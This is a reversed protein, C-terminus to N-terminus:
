PVARTPRSGPRARSLEALAEEIPTPGSIVDFARGVTSSTGLAAALVAAVDARPVSGRELAEGVQVRGTGPDDLLGGPRVITWRLGSQTLAADAQAKARLYAAFGDGPLEPDNAGMASVMVYRDVGGKRCAAILRIAGDRDMTQKRADGSGPGAGAGFVAASAGRVVEALDREDHELDFVVPTIGDAELDAAHDPNRIIGRVAQGAGVLLQGLRLGVKGHAGAIVVTQDAM